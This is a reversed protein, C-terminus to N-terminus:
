LAAETCNKEQKRIFYACLLLNMLFGALALMYILFLPLNLIGAWYDFIDCGMAFLTIFGIAGIHMNRIRRMIRKKEPKLVITLIFSILAAPLYLVSAIVFLYSHLFIM